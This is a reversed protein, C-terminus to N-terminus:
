AEIGLADDHQTSVYPLVVGRQELVHAEAIVCAWDADGREIADTLKLHAQEATRKVEGAVLGIGYRHSM